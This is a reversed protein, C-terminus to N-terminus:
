SIAYAFYIYLFIKERLISCLDNLLFFFLLLLMQQIYIIFDTKYSYRNGNKNEQM